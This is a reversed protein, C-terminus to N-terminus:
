SSVAPGQSVEQATQDGASHRASMEVGDDRHSEVQVSAGAPQGDDGQHGGLVRPGGQGPGEGEEDVPLSDSPELVLHSLEAGCLRSLYEGGEGEGLDREDGGHEVLKYTLFLSLSIYM